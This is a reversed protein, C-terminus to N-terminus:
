SNDCGRGSGSPPNSCPCSSVGGVGPDCLSTFGTENRDRVFIDKQGNTDGAVLNTAESSFAVFRGDASLQPGEDYGSQANGEAGTSDLSARETTALLRDRVFVDRVGNADGAVLNSAESYFG